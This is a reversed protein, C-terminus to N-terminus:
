KRKKKRGKKDTWRIWKVTTCLNKCLFLYLIYKSSRIRFKRSFRRCTVLANAYTVSTDPLGSMCAPGDKSGTRTVKYIFLEFNDSNKVKNYLQFVANSLFSLLNWRNPVASLGVFNSSNAYHKENRPFIAFTTEQTLISRVNIVIWVFKYNIIYVDRFYLYLQFHGITHPSCDQWM